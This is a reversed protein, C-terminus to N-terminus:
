GTHNQQRRVLQGTHHSCLKLPTVLIVELSRVGGVDSSVPDGRQYLIIGTIMQIFNWKWMNLRVHLKIIGTKELQEQLSTNVLCSTNPISSVKDIKIEMGYQSNCISSHPITEWLFIKFHSKQQMIKLLKTTSKMFNSYIRHAKVLALFISTVVQAANSDTITNWYLFACSNSVFRKSRLNKSRQFAVNM